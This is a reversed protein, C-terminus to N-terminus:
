GAAKEKVKGELSEYIGANELAIATYSALTKLINLHYKTYANKEFSQVTIAGLIKKGFIMPYFILSHTMDGMPVVIKKTYKKYEKQNDNIFIEKKNKICWVTYNDDDDMSIDTPEFRKGKELEYKYEVVNRDPHYIRVGFCDASMLKNVNEHLKNFITEFNLTSTLQRGIKSLINIDNYSTELQKRQKEIEKTREKVELETNEHLHANELAIASYVAINQLIKLHYDTYANKEFSQVTIVGIRKQKYNLPLYMISEPPDGVVVDKIKSLYNGRENQYDNMFVEKQNKFCWVAIRTDDDLNYHFQPFTKGKEKAGKFDICQEKENYIGIFFVSADMLTNVNKYVKEIIGEVSLTSTIDKGIGSLMEVDQYAKEIEQKQQMVEATREKVTEEISEYGRANELAISVYLALSRLMDVNYTTYVNKKFSQVSIVGIVQTKIFLPLYILASVVDGILAMNDPDVGIYAKAETEMDNILIDQKKKFCVVPMQDDQDLTVTFLALHKGKEIVGPFELRNRKKNYVGIALSSADMLENVKEYAAEIIKEVTLCATISKGLSSLLKTDKYTKEIEEKQEMVEQTREKITDEMEDNILELDRMAKQKLRYRNHTVFGLLGLLILGIYMSYTFIDDKRMELDRIHKEKSLLNIEEEKKINEYQAQLELTSRYKKEDFITDKIATYLQYYKDANKYDRKQRYALAMKQYSRMLSPNLGIDEALEVSKILYEIAKNASAMELYISGIKDLTASTGRKEKIKEQIALAKMQYELAKDYARAKLHIDGIQSYSEAIKIDDGLEMSSELALSYYELAQTRNGMGTYTDGIKLYSNLLGRTDRLKGFIKKTKLLYTLAMEYNRQQLYIGAILEHSWAIGANNGLEQYLESAKVYHVVADLYNGRLEYIQGINNLCVATGHANKEKEFEIFAKNYHEKAEELESSWYFDNGIEILGWGTEAGYERYLGLAELHMQAANVYDYKARYISGITNYCAAILKNNRLADAIILSRDAYLLASDPNSKLYELALENLIMVKTSDADAASLASSLSDINQQAVSTTFALLFFLAIYARLKNM